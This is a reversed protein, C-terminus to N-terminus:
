FLYGIQLISFHPLGAKGIDNAKENVDRELQQYEATGTAASAPDTTLKVTNSLSLQWGFEMGLFIGQTGGWRWGLHPTLITSTVDATLKTPTGGVDETRSATFSRSGIHTGLFFSGQLPFVRIAGTLTSLGVKVGSVTFSPLVQYDLSAGFMTQYRAEIGGGIVAPFSLLTAKPGLAFDGFAGGAAHVSNSSLACALLVVISPLKM